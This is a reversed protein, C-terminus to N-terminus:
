LKPDTPSPLSQISEVELLNRLAATETATTFDSAVVPSDSNLSLQKLLQFETRIFYLYKGM